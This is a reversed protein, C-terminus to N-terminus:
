NPGLKVGANEIEAKQSSRVEMNPIWILISSVVEKIKRLQDRGLKVIAMTAIILLDLLTESTKM